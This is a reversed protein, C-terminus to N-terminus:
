TLFFLNGLDDMRQVVFDTERRALSTARTQSRESCQSMAPAIMM